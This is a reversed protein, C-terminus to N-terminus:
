LFHYIQAETLLNELNFHDPRLKARCYRHADVKPTLLLKNPTPRSYRVPSSLALSLPCTKMVFLLALSLDTVTLGNRQQM